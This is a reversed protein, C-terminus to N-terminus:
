IKWSFLVKKKMLIKKYRFIFDYRRTSKDKSKKTHSPFVAGGSGIIEISTRGVASPFHKLFIQFFVSDVAVGGGLSLPTEEFHSNKRNTKKKIKKKKLVGILYTSFFFVNKRFVGVQYGLAGSLAGMVSIESFAFIPL